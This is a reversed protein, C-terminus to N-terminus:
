DKSRIVAWAGVLLALLILEPSFGHLHAQAAGHGPHAQAAGAAFFLILALRMKTEEHTM